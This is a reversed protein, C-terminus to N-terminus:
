SKLKTPGVICHFDRLWLNKLALSESSGTEAGQGFSIRRDDSGLCPFLSLMLSCSVDVDGAPRCSASDWPATVNTGNIVSRDVFRGEHQPAWKM